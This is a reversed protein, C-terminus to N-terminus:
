SRPEERRSQRPQVEDGVRVKWHCILPHRENLRQIIRDIYEGDFTARGGGEDGTRRNVWAITYKHGSM